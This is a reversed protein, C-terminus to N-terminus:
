QRIGLGLLRDDLAFAEDVKGIGLREDRDDSPDWDLTQHLRRRLRSAVTLAVRVQNERRTAM